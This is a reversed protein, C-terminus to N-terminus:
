TTQVHGDGGPSVRQLCLIAAALDEIATGVSKFLTIEGADRRGPHHGAVLDALDAVIADRRIVADRLPLVLDGAEEVAAYTDVFITAQAVAANDVERMAPTFGGILDVHAGPRLWAGQVLPETSLTCCTIIDAQAAANWLDSVARAEFGDGCLRAALIAASAANRGWVDVRRIARVTAHSAAIQGAVQGTGVILLRTADVRALYRAALSSAAVTRRTTLEAGDLTAMLEGTRGSFLLYVSQVAALAQARNGPFVHAVKTGIYQGPIWAPMLLMTASPDGPVEIDHHHRTPAICSGRFATDLADILAARDLAAAVKSKGIHV